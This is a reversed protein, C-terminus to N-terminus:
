LNVLKTNHFEIKAILKAAKEITHVVTWEQFYHFNYYISEIRIIRFYSYMKCKYSRWTVRLTGHSIANSDFDVYIWYYLDLNLCSRCLEAIHLFLTKYANCHTGYIWNWTNLSRHYLKVSCPDCTQLDIVLFSSFFAAM